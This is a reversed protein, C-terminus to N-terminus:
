RKVDDKKESSKLFYKWVVNAGSTCNKEWTIVPVVGNVLSDDNTQMTENLKLKSQTKHAAHQTNRNVIITPPPPTTTRDNTFRDDTVNSSRTHRSPM